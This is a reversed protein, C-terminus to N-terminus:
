KRRKVTVNALKEWYQIVGCHDFVFMAVTLSNPTMVKTLAPVTAIVAQLKVFLLIEAVILTVLVNPSILENSSEELLILKATPSLLSKVM